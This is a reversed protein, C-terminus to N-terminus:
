RMNKSNRVVNKIVFEGLTGPANVGLELLSVGMVRVAMERLFESDKCLVDVVEKKFDDDSELSKLLAIKDM